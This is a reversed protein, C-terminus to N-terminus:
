QTRALRDDRAPGAMLRMISHSLLLACAWSLTYAIWPLTGPAVVMLHAASLYLRERIPSGISVVIVLAALGRWGFRRAIRWGTLALFAGALVGTTYLLLLAQTSHEVVVFRRWGMSIPVVTVLVSFVAGGVISSAVRRVQARSVYAVAVLLALVIYTM